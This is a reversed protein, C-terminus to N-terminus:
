PTEVVLLAGDRAAVVVRNGLSVPGGAIPQGTEARGIENGDQLDVKVVAGFQTAVIMNGASELPPGAFPSKPAPVQWAKTGSADFAVVAGAKTRLVLVEGALYPGWVIQSGLEISDGADLGPLQFVALRNDSTGAYARSGLVVMDTVLPAPGVEAESVAVLVPRDGQQLEVLFVKEVGDSIVFQDDDGVGAPLWEKARGPQLAPQFPAALPQGSEGDLFFIQGVSLPAIWGEGFATPRCALSGPLSGRVLPQIGAPRYLLLHESGLASFVAGGGDLLTAHDYVLTGSVDDDAPAKLSENQMRTRIADPDFLYVQGNADAELLAVPSSSALPDGAPSAAVDTQWYASGTEADAATVTYGARGRRSRVHLLVGDRIEIPAVFQSRNYDDSLEQVSLRNGTPAVAYKTIANEAFWIDKGNVRGFRVFPSGSKAGRTALVTLVEGDTGLSVEYITIQGRDTSVMFRRGDIQPQRVVRGELRQETLPAAINGDGDLAFLRLKCTRAGDNEIVVAKDLVITLPAVISGRPHKTYYVGTCSLDEASLTYLSSHNGVLYLKRTQESVVPPTELPQAFQVYGLRTGSAAEVVHLKGSAGAVFIRDGSVVPEAFDDDVELRWKLKGTTAEVRVLTQRQQDGKDLRWEVLLLDNGVTKPYNQDLTPGIYRRWLL